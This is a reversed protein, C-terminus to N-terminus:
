HSVKEFERHLIVKGGGMEHRVYHSTPSPRDWKKSNLIEWFMKRNNRLISGMIRM